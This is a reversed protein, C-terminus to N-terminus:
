DDAQIAADEAKVQTTNADILAGIRAIYADDTEAQGQPNGKILNAVDAILQPTYQAIIPLLAAIIAATNM